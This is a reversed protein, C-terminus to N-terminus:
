VCEKYGKRQFTSKMLLFVLNAKFFFFFACNMRFRIECPGSHRLSCPPSLGVFVDDVHSEPNGGEVYESMKECADAGDDSTFYM